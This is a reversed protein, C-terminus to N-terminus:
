IDLTKNTNNYDVEAEYIVEYGLKIALLHEIKAGNSQHWNTLMFIADCNMLAIIDAKMYSLWTKDHTHPIKLPNIPEIGNAFLYNEAKEFLAPAQAEIGTIKGSIYVKM